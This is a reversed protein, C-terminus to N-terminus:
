GLIPLLSPPHVGDSHGPTGAPQNPFMLACNRNHMYVATTIEQEAEFVIVDLKEAPLLSRIENPLKPIAVWM